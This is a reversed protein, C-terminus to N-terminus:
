LEWKSKVAFFSEMWNRLLYSCANLGRDNYSCVLYEKKILDMEINSTPSFQHVGHDWHIYAVLRCSEKNIHEPEEYFLNYYLTALEYPIKQKELPFKHFLKQLLQKNYLRPYHTNFSSLGNRHKSLHALELAQLITKEHRSRKKKDYKHANDICLAKNFFVQYDTVPNLVIQDDYFYLFEDQCFDQNVFWRIKGLVCYYNEYLRDGYEDELGEPYFRPLEHYTCNSLWPIDVGPEGLVVLDVDGLYEDLSRLCYRLENNDWNSGTGIPIVVQM